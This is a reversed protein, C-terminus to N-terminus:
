VAAVSTRGRRARRRGVSVTCVHPLRCSAAGDGGLQGGARPDGAPALVFGGPVELEIPGAGWLRYCRWSIVEDMWESRKETFLLARNGGRWDTWVGGGGGDNGRGRRRRGGGKQPQHEDGRLRRVGKKM